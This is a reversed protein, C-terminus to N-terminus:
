LCHLLWGVTFITLWEMQCVRPFTHSCCAFLLSVCLEEDQPLSVLLCSLPVLYFCLNETCSSFFLEPISQMFPHIWQM